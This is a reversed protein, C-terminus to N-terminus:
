DLLRMLNSSSVPTRAKDKGKGHGEGEDEVDGEQVQGSSGKEVYMGRTELDLIEESRVRKYPPISRDGMRVNPSVSGALTPGPAISPLDFGQDEGDVQIYKRDLPGSIAIRALEPPLHSHSHSQSQSYTQSYAQDDQVFDLEHEEGGSHSRSRSLRMNAEHTKSPEINGPYASKLSEPITSPSSRRRKIPLPIWPQAARTDPRSSSSTSLPSLTPPLPASLPNSLHPHPSRAFPELVSPFPKDTEWRTTIAPLTRSSSSSQHQHHRPIHPPHTTTRSTGHHSHSYSHSHSHTHSHSRQRHHHHLHSHDHGEQRVHADEGFAGGAAREHDWREYPSPSRLSIASRPPLDDHYSQPFQRPHHFTPEHYNSGATTPPDILLRTSASSSSSGAWASVRERDDGDISLRRSRPSKQLDEYDAPDEGEPIGGNIVLAKRGKQRQNQFWVQVQRPTLGIEQGLKERDAGTPFKTKRWLRTLGSQQMHTLLARTRKKKYGGMPYPQGPQMSSTGTHSSGSISSGGSLERQMSYSHHSHQSEHSHTRSLPEDHHFQRHDLSVISPSLPALRQHYHGDLESSFSSHPRYVPPYRFSQTTPRTPPLQSQSMSSEPSHSNSRHHYSPSSDQRASSSAVIHPPPPKPPPPFIPKDQPETRRGDPGLWQQPPPKPAYYRRDATVYPALPPPGVQHMAAQAFEPRPPRFRSGASSPGPDNFFSPSPLSRHPSRRLPSCEVLGFPADYTSRPRSSRDRNDRKDHEDRRYFPSAPQRAPSTVGPLSRVSRQEEGM